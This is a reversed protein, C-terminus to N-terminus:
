CNAGGACEAYLPGVGDQLGREQLTPISPFAALCELRGYGALLRGRRIAGRQHWPRRGLFM